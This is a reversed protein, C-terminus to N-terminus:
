NSASRCYFFLLLCAPPGSHTFHFRSASFLHFRTRVALRLCTVYSLVRVGRLQPWVSCIEVRAPFPAAEGAAASVRGGSKLPLPPFNSTQQFWILSKDSATACRPASEYNRKLGCILIILTVTVNISFWKLTKSCFLLRDGLNSSFLHTHTCTRTHRLRNCNKIWNMNIEHRIFSMIFNYQILLLKFVVM